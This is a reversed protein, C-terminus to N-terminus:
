YMRLTNVPNLNNQLFEGLNIRIKNNQYEKEDVTKRNDHLNKTQIEQHINSEQIYRKDRYHQRKQRSEIRHYDTSESIMGLKRLHIM